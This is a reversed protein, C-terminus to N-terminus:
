IRGRLSEIDRQLAGIRDLLDLIVSIGALNIGLSERLRGITRIRLVAAADFRLTDGQRRVPELLGFEVLRAVFGPHVGARAALEEATCTEQPVVVITYNM